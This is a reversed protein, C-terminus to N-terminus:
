ALKKIINTTSYGEKLPVLVIKGGYGEVIEHGVVQHKQYDAGKALIGPKLNEILNIPTDEPFIVVMDVVSLSALLLAREMENNVPRSEGKLRKVSADSNLGVILKDCHLKTRNLLTLHGSHMLDFCGNTFGITKGERQWQEVQAVASVLPLIKHTGMAQEQVFIETKLDEPTVAATGLRGVVIGGAINALNAAESFSLGSAIGLALTAIVTDGAGSVDFVEQARAKLHQPESNRSVLTMGDKSRTVLINAINHAEMLKKAADIIEEDTRLERAAANALENLNPSIFDAGSYLSFDRSKPDVIVPKGEAKATAIIEQVVERTLLGKGYDSLIVVDIKKIEAVITDVLMKTTNPAIATLVEKDARLV